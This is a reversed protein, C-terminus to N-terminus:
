LKLDSSAGGDRSRLVTQSLDLITCCCRLRSIEQYRDFVPMGEMRRGAPGMTETSKEITDPQEKIERAKLEFPM